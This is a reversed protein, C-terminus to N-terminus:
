HDLRCVLRYVRGWWGFSTPVTSLALPVNLELSREPQSTHFLGHRRGDVDLYDGVFDGQDSVDSIVTALAQGGRTYNFLSVEGGPQRIFGSEFQESKEVYGVIQGQDNVAAAVGPLGGEIDLSSFEATASQYSFPHLEGSEDFFAGVALGSSNTDLLVTGASNPYDITKYNEGDYLFGHSVGQADAYHGLLFGAGSSQIVTESAGPVDLTQYLYETAALPSSILALFAVAASTRFPALRAIMLCPVAVVLLAWGAPEPVATAARPLEKGFNEKLLGFDALDIAGDGSFDGDFATGTMGFHEKLLGFDALGIVGDVDADGLPTLQSGGAFVFVSNVGFAGASIQGDIGTLSSGLQKNIDLPRDPLPPPLLTNLLRGDPSFFYAAGNDNGAADERRAGIVPNNGVFAVASGFEDDFSPSPNSFTQLLHGQLDFLYAAGAWQAGADDYPAGILVRNASLAITQGFSDGLSPTPNAFRTLFQFDAGFLYAAGGPANDGDDDPAGVLLRDGASALSFGFASLEHPTPPELPHLYAGKADYLQVIGRNYMEGQEGDWFPVGVALADGTLAVAAGFRNEATTPRPAVVSTIYQDNAGFLHAAGVTHPDQRTNLEDAILLMGEHASLAGGYEAAPRIAREDLFHVDPNAALPHEVRRVSGRRVDRPNGLTLSDGDAAQTEGLDRFVAVVDGPAAAGVDGARGLGLATLVLLCVLSRM